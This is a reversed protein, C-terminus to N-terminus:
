WKKALKPTRKKALKPTRKKALKKTSLKSFCVSFALSRSFFIVVNSV